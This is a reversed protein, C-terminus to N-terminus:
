NANLRTTVIIVGGNARSGYISGSASKLVAISRVTAPAILSLDSTQAYTGDIVVLPEVPGFFNYSSLVVLRDGYQVVGSVNSTIMDYVSSYTNFKKETADIFEIDGTAYKRKLVAYGIIIPEEGKRNRGRLEAEDSDPDNNKSYASAKTISSFCIDIRNRNNIEEEYYGNGLTFVGIKSASPKVKISYNGASDTLINTKHNDVIIIANSIPNNNLDVVTGTVTIKVSKQADLVNILLHSFLIVLLLKSKM